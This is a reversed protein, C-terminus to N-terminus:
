AAQTPPPATREERPCELPLTFHFTSGRGPVSEVGITGGMTEVLQRSLALGLGTGGYKRTHSGDAQGFPQFIRTFLEPPIGIGTDTISFRIKMPSGAQNKTQHPADLLPPSDQEVYLTITGQETFKLANSMLNLLVQRIRRRDGRLAAPVDPHVSAALLLGKLHAREASQLVVESLLTNVSFDTLQLPVRGTEIKSFDLLNKILAFLANGSRTIATVYERQESTVSTELLMETMGLISNLPTRLEHSITAVFESKLRAGELAADRAQLLESQSDRLARAIQASRLLYRVRHGLLVGNLPKTLFDTAGSEYARTISTYDDLGTMFVIPVHELAPMRRLAACAAFGDMEPMVVDLLILDPPRQGAADVAARGTDVVEVRWGDSSLAEAALLRIVPDDDAILVLPTPPPTLTM